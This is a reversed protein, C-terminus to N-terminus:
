LNPDQRPFAEKWDVLTFIAAVAECHSNKELELDALYHLISVGKRNGIQAPNMKVQIDRIIWNVSLFNGKGDDQKFKIPFFSWINPGFHKASIM